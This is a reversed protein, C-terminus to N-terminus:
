SQCDAPVFFSHGAFFYLFICLFPLNGGHGCSDAAQDPLSKKM